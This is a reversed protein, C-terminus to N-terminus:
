SHQKKDLGQKQISAHVRAQVDLENMRDYTQVQGPQTSSLHDRAYFQM